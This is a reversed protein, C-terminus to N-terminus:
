VGIIFLKEIRKLHTEKKGLPTKHQKEYILRFDKPMWYESVIVIHKKSLERLRDYFLNYDFEQKDSYKTTGKYPPDCYIVSKPMNDFDIEFFSQCIFNVNKINPQQKLLNKIRESPINRGTKKDRAFTDFFKGGYSGCFGVLGVYWKGYDKNNKKVHNYLRGTIIAKTLDAGFSVARLLEILYCNIDYGTKSKCKIKDIVNAGGVFPEIYNSINYNDIYYQIIKPIDKIRAKSGMYVM